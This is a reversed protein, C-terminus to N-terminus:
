ESIEKKEVEDMYEEYDGETAFLQKKGTEIFGIYGAQVPYGKREYKM